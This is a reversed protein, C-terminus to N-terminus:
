RRRSHYGKRSGRGRPNPNRTPRPNPRAPRRAHAAADPAPASRAAPAANLAGPAPAPTRRARRPRQPRQRPLSSRAVVPAMRPPQRNLGWDCGTTASLKSHPVAPSRHRGLRHGWSDPAAAVSLTKCSCETHHAPLRPDAPVKTSRAPHLAPWAWFFAHHVRRSSGSGVRARACLRAARGKHTYGPAKAKWV